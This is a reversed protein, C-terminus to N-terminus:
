KQLTATRMKGAGAMGKYLHAFDWIPLLFNGLNRVFSGWCQLPKIILKNNFDSCLCLILLMYNRMTVTKWFSRVPVSDTFEMVNTRNNRRGGKVVEDGHTQRSGSLRASPGKQFGRHNGASNQGENGALRLVHVPIRGPLRVCLDLLQLVEHCGPSRLLTLALQKTWAKWLVSIGPVIFFIEKNGVEKWVYLHLTCSHVNLYSYDHGKFELVIAHLVISSASSCQVTNNINKEYWLM